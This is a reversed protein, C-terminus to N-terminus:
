EYVASKVPQEDPLSLRTKRKRATLLLGALFITLTGIIIIV